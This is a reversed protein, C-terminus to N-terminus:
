LTYIRNLRPLQKFIGVQPQSASQQNPQAVTACICKRLMRLWGFAISKSRVRAIPDRIEIARGQDSSDVWVLKALPAPLSTPLMACIREAAKTNKFQIGTQTVLWCRESCNPGDPTTVTCTPTLSRYFQRARKRGHPACRLSM